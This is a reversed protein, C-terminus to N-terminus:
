RGKSADSFAVLSCWHSQVWALRKLSRSKQPHSRASVISFYKSFGDGLQPSRSPRHSQLLPPWDRPKPLLDSIHAPYSASAILARCFEAPLYDPDKSCSNTQCRLCFTSYPSPSSPPARYSSRARPSHAALPDPPPQTTFADLRRSSISQPVNSGRRHLVFM